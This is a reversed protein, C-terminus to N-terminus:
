SADYISVPGIYMMFEKIVDQEEKTYSSLLYDTEEENLYKCFRAM